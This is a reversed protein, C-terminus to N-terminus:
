RSRRRPGVISIVGLCFLVLAAPEPIAGVAGLQFGNLVTAAQVGSFSNPDAWTYLTIVGSANSTTNFSAAYAYANLPSDPGSIQTRLLTPIPNKYGTNTPPDNNAPDADDNNAPTAPNSDDDIDL